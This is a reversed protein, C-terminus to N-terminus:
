GTKYKDYLMKAQNFGKLKDKAIEYRKNGWGHMRVYGEDSNINIESTAGLSLLECSSYRMFSVPYKVCIRKMNDDCLIYEDGNIMRVMTEKFGSDGSDYHKISHINRVKVTFKEAGIKNKKVAIDDDMQLYLQKFYLLEHCGTLECEELKEVPKIALAFRLKQLLTQHDEATKSGDLAENLLDRLLKILEITEM